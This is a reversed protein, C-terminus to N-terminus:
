YAAQKNLNREITQASPDTAQDSDREGGGRGSSPVIKIKKIFTALKSRGGAKVM